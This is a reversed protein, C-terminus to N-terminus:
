KKQSRRLDRGMPSIMRHEGAGEGDLVTGSLTLAQSLENASHSDVM